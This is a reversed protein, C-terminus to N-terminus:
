EYSNVNNKYSDKLKKGFSSLMSEKADRNLDVGIKQKSQKELYLKSYSEVLEHSISAGITIREFPKGDKMKYWNGDIQSMQFSEDPKEGGRKNEHSSASSSLLHGSTFRGSPAITTM